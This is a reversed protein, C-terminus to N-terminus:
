KRSASHAGALLLVGFGIAMSPIVIWYWGPRPGRAMTLAVHTIAAILLTWGLFEYREMWKGNRGLGLPAILRRYTISRPWVASWRQLLRDITGIALSSALYRDVATSPRPALAKAIRTDADRMGSRFLRAIASSM